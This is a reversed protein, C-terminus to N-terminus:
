SKSGSSRRGEMVMHDITTIVDASSAEMQSFATVLREKLEQQTAWDHDILALVEHAATHVHQHPTELLRFSPTQGLQQKGKGQYYWKGLRCSKHDVAVPQTYEERGNHTVSVYARQKYIIHDVKTLTAFCQVHANNIEVLHDRASDAFKLFRVALEDVVSRANGAQIRMTTASEQMSVSDKVLEKMVTGISASAEKTKEALKKVEDAVVSFGRGAEGARAAEIAANLALLNTQDSITNILSVAQQIEGGRANLKEVMGATSEIREVVEGLEVATAKVSHRSADADDRTCGADVAVRDIWETIEKLDKQTTILNEILNTTNLQQLQALLGSRQKHEYVSAIAGLSVNIRQEISDRFEGHLGVAYAKRFFKDKVHYEFSTAVEKFYCELQDLMDNVAWCLLGLEKSDTIGIVRKDFGGAATYQVVESVKGLLEFWQRSRAEAIVLLAVGLGLVMLSFWVSGCHLVEAFVNCVLLGNFLFFPLIFKFHLSLNKM